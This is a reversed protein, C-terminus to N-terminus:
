QMSVHTVKRCSSLVRRMLYYFLLVLLLVWLLPDMAQSGPRLACGAGGSVGTVISGESSADAQQPFDELLATNPANGDNDLTDPNGDSDTDPLPLAQLLLRDDWGDGNQDILDDITGNADLDVGGAEVLDFRGDQDSDIDLFDPVGDRDFDPVVTTYTTVPSDAADDIVGNNDRDEAGAEILDALGDNDSDLDYRNPVGDGDADDLGEVTDAISDRDLDSIINLTASAPPSASTSGPKDDADAVGVDELPLDDLLLDEAAPEQNASPEQAASPEEASPEDITQQDVSQNVATPETISEVVGEENKSPVGDADVPGDVMGDHNSDFSADVDPLGDNNSDLDRHDPYGDNDTHRVVPVPVYSALAGSTFSHRFGAADNDLGQLVNVNSSSNYTIELKSVNRLHLTVADNETNDSEGNATFILKGAVTDDILLNTDLSVSYGAINKSDITISESRSGDLDGVTLDIDILMQEDTGFRVFQWHVETQGASLHKFKPLQQQTSWDVRTSTREITGVFDLSPTGRSNLLPYRFVSGETQNSALAEATEVADSLLVYSAAPHDALDAYSVYGEDSNLIGDNDQDLDWQDAVGDQDFDPLHDQAMDPVPGSLEDAIATGTILVLIFLLCRVGHANGFCVPVPTKSLYGNSRVPTLQSGFWVCMKKRYAIM